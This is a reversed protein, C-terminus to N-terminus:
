NTNRSLWQWADEYNSFYAEKTSVVGEERFGKPAVFAARSIHRIIESKNSLFERMFKLCEISEFNHTNTDLLLAVQEQPKRERLLGVFEEAWSHLSDFSTYEPMLVIYAQIDNDFQIKIPENKITKSLSM